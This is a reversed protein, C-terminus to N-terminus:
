SRYKAGFIIQTILDRLIPHAPCTTRMTYVLNAYMTKITLSSPLVVQFVQVYIPSLICSLCLIHLTMNLRTRTVTRAM